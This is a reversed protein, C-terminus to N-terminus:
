DTLVPQVSRNQLTKKIEDEVWILWGLCDEIAGQVDDFTMDPHKLSYTEVFEILDETLGDRSGADHKRSGKQTMRSRLLDGPDGAIKGLRWDRILSATEKTTLGHDTECLADAWKIAWDRGDRFDMVLRGLEVLVSQRPQREIRKLFGPEIMEIMARHEPDHTPIPLLGDDNKGLLWRYKSTDYHVVGEADPKAFLLIAQTMYAKNQQDRRTTSGPYCAVEQVFDYPKGTEVNTLKVPRGRGRKTSNESVTESIAETSM